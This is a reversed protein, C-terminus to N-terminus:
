WSGSEGCRVMEQMHVHWFFPHFVCRANVIFPYRHLFLKNISFIYLVKVLQLFSAASVWSTWCFSSCLGAGPTSCDWSSAQLWSYLFCSQLSPLPLPCPISYSSAIWEQRLSIWHDVPRCCPCAQWCNLVSSKEERNLGPSFCRYHESQHLVECQLVPMSMSSVTLPWLSSWPVPSGKLSLSLSSPSSLRVLLTLPIKDKHIFVQLSLTFFISSCQAWQLGTVPFSATIVYQFM